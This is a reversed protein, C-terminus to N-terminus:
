YNVIKVRLGDLLEYAPCTTKMLLKDQFKSKKPDFLLCSECEKLFGSMPCISFGNILFTRLFFMMVTAKTIQEKLNSDVQPHFNTKMVTHDLNELLHISSTGSYLTNALFIGSPLDTETKGMKALLDEKTQEFEQLNKM